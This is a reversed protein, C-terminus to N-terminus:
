SAEVSIVRVAATTLTTPGCRHSLSHLRGCNRQCVAVDTCPLTGKRYCRAQKIQMVGGEHYARYKAMCTRGLACHLPAQSPRRAHLRSAPPGPPSPGPAPACPPAPATGSAHRAGPATCACHGACRGARLRTLGRPTRHPKPPRLCVRGRLARHMNPAQQQLQVLPRGLGLPRFKAYVIATARHPVCACAEQEARGTHHGNRGGGGLQLACQRICSGKYM